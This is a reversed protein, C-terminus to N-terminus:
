PIIELELFVYNELELESYSDGPRLATGLFFQAIALTVLLVAAASAAMVFRRLARIQAARQRRISQIVQEVVSPAIIPAEREQAAMAALQDDITM